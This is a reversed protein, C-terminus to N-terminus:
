CGIQDCGPFRGVSAASAASEDVAQFKVYDPSATSAGSKSYERIRPSRIERPAASAVSYPLKM